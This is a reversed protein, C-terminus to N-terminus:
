NSRGPDLISFEEEVGVTFDSAARSPRPARDLDLSNM